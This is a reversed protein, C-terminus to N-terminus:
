VFEKHENDIKGLKIDDEISSMEGKFSGFKRVSLGQHFLVDIEELSKGKCEPVCFYTFMMACFSLGGFIFGVKSGLDAYPAYLLYPITFNVAFQFIVNVTSATRQMVDRLRLPAVETTVVYTLPAWALIFGCGFITVMAVIATKASSSPNKILGIGGMTTIAAFQIAASIFLLPKRGVRDNLYLGISMVLLYCCLNIVTMSFPNVTGLGSIFTASYTSVFAQGTVQQFTNMGIAIATRKRNVQNFLENFKGQEPMCRLSTQLYEFEASIEADTLTGERLKQLNARAEEIRDKTLLWRPSEPITWIVCIIIAPIVFFLGFPTRWAANTKLTSTGRCICNVILGGTVLSFQYSGVTIGRIPAPMIESMFIPMVSLEMGVYIYFLVRGALMQDRSTSSIVITAAVLAWCSMVFICMRRGWRSSVLSGVMVGVAFGIYNLSNFLSLWYTPLAYAGKKSDYEGFQHKFAAMAQSTSFGQNDFGYNLTSLFIVMFSRALAKNFHKTIDNLASM